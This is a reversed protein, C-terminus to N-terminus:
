SECSELLKGKTLGECCAKPCTNTSGCCDCFMLLHGRLTSLVGRNVRVSDYLRTWSSGVSTLILREMYADVAQTTLGLQFRERLHMATQEGYM